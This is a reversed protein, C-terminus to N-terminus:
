KKLYFKLDVQFKDKFRIGEALLKERQKEEKGFAYNRAVRGERNVVRHCPVAPNKNVHLAWGVTRPSIKLKNAMEGYTMVKGRPILKVLRYVRNFVKGM